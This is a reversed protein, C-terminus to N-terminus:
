AFAEPRQEIYTVLKEALVEAQRASLRIASEIVGAQNYTVVSVGGYSSEYFRINTATAVKTQHGKPSVDTFFVDIAKSM